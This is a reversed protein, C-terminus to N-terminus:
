NAVQWALHCRSGRSAPTQRGPGSCFASSRGLGRVGTGSARAWCARPRVQARLLERGARGASGPCGARDGGQRLRPGTGHARCPGAEAALGTAM